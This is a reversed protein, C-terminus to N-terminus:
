PDWDHFLHIFERDWSWENQDYVIGLNSPVSAEKDVALSLLDPFHDKPSFEM